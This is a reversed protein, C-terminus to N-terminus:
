SYAADPKRPKQVQEPRKAPLAKEFHKQTVLRADLNERLAEM